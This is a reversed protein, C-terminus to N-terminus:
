GWLMQSLIYLVYVVITARVLQGKFTTVSGDQKKKRERYKKSSITLIINGIFYSMILVTPFVLVDIYIAKILFIFLMVLVVISHFIMIFMMVLAKRIEKGWTEMDAKLEGSEEKRTFENLEKYFEKFIGGSLLSISYTVLLYIGIFVLVM